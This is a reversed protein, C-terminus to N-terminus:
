AANKAARFSNNGHTQRYKKLITFETHTHEMSLHAGRNIGYIYIYWMIQHIFVYISRLFKFKIRCHKRLKGDNIHNSKRNSKDIQSHNMM